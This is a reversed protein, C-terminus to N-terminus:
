RGTVMQQLCSISPWPSRNPDSNQYERIDASSAIRGKMVCLLIMGALGLVIGFTRSGVAFEQADPILEDATIFVMAGGLGIGLVASSVNRGGSLRRWRWPCAPWRAKTIQLAHRAACMPRWGEPINHLAITLGRFAGAIIWTRLERRYGLGEPLNHM